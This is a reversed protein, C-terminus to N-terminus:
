GSDESPTSESNKAREEVSQNLGNLNSAEEQLATFIRGSMDGLAEFDAATLKPEVLSEIVLKRRFLATDFEKGGKGDPLMSSERIKGQQAVTLGRLLVTGGLEPVEVEKTKPQAALIQERTLRAM